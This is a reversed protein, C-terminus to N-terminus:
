GTAASDKRAALIARVLGEPVDEERSAADRGMRVAQQYTKLYAVCSPCVSLHRDFEARRDAPLEGDLYAMLFATIESCPLYPRSM